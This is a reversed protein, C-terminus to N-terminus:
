AVGVVLFGPYEDWYPYATVGQVRQYVQAGDAAVHVCSRGGEAEPM